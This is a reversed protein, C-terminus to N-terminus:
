QTKCLYCWPFPVSPGLQDGLPFDPKLFPVSWATQRWCTTQTLGIERDNILVLTVGKVGMLSFLNPALKVRFARIPNERYTYQLMLTCHSSDSSSPSTEGWPFFNNRIFLFINWIHLNSCELDWRWGENNGSQVAGEGVCVCVCVIALWFLFQISLGVLFSTRKPPLGSGFNRM